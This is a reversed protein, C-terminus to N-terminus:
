WRVELGLTGTHSNSGTRFKGDYSAYVRTTRSLGYSLTAGADAGLTSENFGQVMVGSVSVNPARQMFNDIFKAYASVDIVHQDVIWYRGIEAGILLRAREGDASSVSYNLSGGTETFADTHSRAYELAVKPILRSQGLAPYYSIEAIAGTITGGYSAVATSPGATLRSSNIRGVGHVGAAVFTWPGNTYVANIGIQTLDVNASQLAAPVDIGSRSQDVTAGVTFDPSVAYSFGAVGGFARRHDGAFAGYPATTSWLGYGEFYARYRPRSQAPAGGGGPNANNAANVGWTAANGMRELLRSGLDLFTFNAADYPGTPTCYSLYLYTVSPPCAAARAGTPALASVAVAIAPLVSGSL